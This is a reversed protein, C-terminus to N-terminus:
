MYLKAITGVLQWLQDKAANVAVLEGVMKVDNKADLVQAKGVIEHGTPLRLLCVRTNASLQFHKIESADILSDIFAPSIRNGSELLEAKIMKGLDM